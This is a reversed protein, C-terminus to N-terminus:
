ILHNGVEERLISIVTIQNGTQWQSLRNAFIALYEDTINNLINIQQSGLNIKFEKTYLFAFVRPKPIKHKHNKKRRGGAPAMMCLLESESLRLNLVTEFIQM